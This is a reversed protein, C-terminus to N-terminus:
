AAIPAHATKDPLRSQLDEYIDKYGNVFRIQPPIYVKNEDFNEHTYYPNNFVYLMLNNADAPIEGADKLERFARYAYLASSLDDDDFIVIRGEKLWQRIKNEKSIGSKKSGKERLIIEDFESRIGGKQLAEETMRREYEERGSLIVTTLDYGRDKILAKIQPIYEKADPKVSRPRHWEITAYQKIPKFIDKSRRLFALLGHVALGLSGTHKNESNDKESTSSLPSDYTGRRLKITTNLPPLNYWSTLVSGDGDNAFVVSDPLRTNEAM